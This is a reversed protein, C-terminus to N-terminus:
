TKVGFGLVMLFDRADCSSSRAWGGLDLRGGREDRLWSKYAEALGVEGTDGVGVLRM